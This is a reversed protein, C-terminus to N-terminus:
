IMRSYCELSILERIEDTLPPRVFTGWRKGYYNIAFNSNNHTICMRMDYMAVTNQQPTNDGVVLIGKYAGVEFAKPMQCNLVIYNGKPLKANIEKLAIVQFEEM